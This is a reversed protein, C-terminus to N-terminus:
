SKKSSFSWWEAKEKQKLLVKHALSALEEARDSMQKSAIEVEGLKQGREILKNRTDNVAGCASDVTGRMRNMNANVDEKKAVGYPAKGAAEGFLQDSDLSTNSAFIKAFFNQKPAEPMAISPDYLECLMESIQEKVDSAISLKQIETPSCMFLGHGRDTFICTSAILSRFTDASSVSNMDSPAQPRKETFASATSPPSSQPHNNSSTLSTSISHKSTSTMMTSQQQQHADDKRLDVMHAKRKHSKERMHETYELSCTGRLKAHNYASSTWTKSLNTTESGSESDDNKDNSETSKLPPPTTVIRSRKDSPFSRNANLSVTTGLPKHSRRTIDPSTARKGRVPSQNIEEGGSSGGNDDGGSKAANEKESHDSNICALSSDHKDFTSPRSWRSRFTRFTKSLTGTNHSKEDHFGGDGVTPPSGLTQDNGPLSDISPSHFFPTSSVDNTSYPSM